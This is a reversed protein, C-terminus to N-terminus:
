FGSPTGNFQPVKATKVAGGEDIDMIIIDDKEEIPHEEIIEEIIEEEQLLREAERIAATFESTESDSDDSAM